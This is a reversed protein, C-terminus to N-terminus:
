FNKKESLSSADPQNNNDIDEEKSSIEKKFIGQMSLLKAAEQASPRKQPDADWSRKMLDVVVPPCDSPPIPREGQIIKSESARFAPVKRSAIECLIIGYSYMDTQTSTPTKEDELLEPAIYGPTGILGVRTTPADLIKEKSIGFDALKAHFDNTILINDSKLDRHIVKNDHIYLLGLSVDCAIQGREQSWELPHYWDTFQENKKTLVAKLSGLEVYEMVLTYPDEKPFYEPIYIGYLKVLYPSSCLKKMMTVEQWFQVEFQKLKDDAWHDIRDFEKIAVVINDNYTGKYVTAFSGRGIPMPYDKCQGKTLEKKLSDRRIETVKSSAQQLHAELYFKLKNDVFFIKWVILDGSADFSILKKDNSTLVFGKVASQHSVLTAKKEGTLVDWFVITNHDVSILLKSDKSFQLKNQSGLSFCSSDKLYKKKNNLVDYIIIEIWARNIYAISKGDPSVKMDSTQGSGNGTLKIKDSFNRIYKYNKTDWLKGAEMSCSALYDGNPSFKLNYVHNYPHLFDPTHAQFSHICSFTQMDWIKVYGEDDGTALIKGDANFTMGRVVDDHELIAVLEGKVIDWLCITGRSSLVSALINKIGGVFKEDATTARYNTQRGRGFVSNMGGAAVLKNDPSFIINYAVPEQELLAQMKLTRMNWLRIKHYDDISALISGDLSLYLHQLKTHEKFIAVCTIKELDWIRIENNDHGTIFYESNCVVGTVKSLAPVDKTADLEESVKGVDDPNMM